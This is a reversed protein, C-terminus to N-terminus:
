LIPPYDFGSRVECEQAISRKPSGQEADNEQATGLEPGMSVLAMFHRRPAEQTLAMVRTPRASLRLFASGLNIIARPPSTRPEQQDQDKLRIIM